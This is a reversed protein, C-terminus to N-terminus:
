NLIIWVWLASSLGIYGVWHAEIRSPRLERFWPLSPGGNLGISFTVAVGIAWLVWTPITFETMIREGM